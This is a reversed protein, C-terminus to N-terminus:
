LLAWQFGAGRRVRAGGMLGAPSQAGTGAVDRLLMVVKPNSYPQQTLAKCFSSSLRRAELDPSGWKGAGAMEGGGQARGLDGTLRVPARACCARCSLGGGAHRTGRCVRRSGRWGVLAPCKEARGQGEGAPRQGGWDCSVGGWCGSGLTLKKM